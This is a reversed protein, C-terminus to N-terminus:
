PDQLSTAEPGMGGEVELRSKCDQKVVQYKSAYSLSSCKSITLVPKSPLMYLLCPLFCCSPSGGLLRSPLLVVLELSKRNQAATVSPQSCEGFNICPAPCRRSHPPCSSISRSFTPHGSAEISELTRQKKPGKGM